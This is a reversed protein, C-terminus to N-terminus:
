YLVPVFTPSRSACRTLGYAQRGAAHAASFPGRIASAKAADFRSLVLLLNIDSTPRLRGEAGSGYLVASQLDSGFAQRASDLFNTIARSVNEPLEHLDSQIV